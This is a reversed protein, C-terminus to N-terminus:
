YGYNVVKWADGDKALLVSCCFWRGEDSLYEYQPDYFRVTVVSSVDGEIIKYDSNNLRELYEAGENQPFHMKDPTLSANEQMMYSKATVMDNNYVAVCFKRALKVPEPDGIQSGCNWLTLTLIIISIIYSFKRM